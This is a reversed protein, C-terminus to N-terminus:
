KLTPVIEAILRIDKNSDILDYIKYGIHSVTPELNFKLNTRSEILSIAEKVQDFHHICYQLACHLYVDNGYLYLVIM